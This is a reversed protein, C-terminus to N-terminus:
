RVYSDQINAAGSCRRLDGFLASDSSNWPRDNTVHVVALFVRNRRSHLGSFYDQSQNNKLEAPTFLNRRHGGVRQSALDPRIAEGHSQDHDGVVPVSLV